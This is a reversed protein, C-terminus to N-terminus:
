LPLHEGNHEVGCRYQTGPSLGSLVAEYQYYTFGIGTESHSFERVRAIAEISHAADASCKVLGRGAELTTWLITARDAGVNQVYPKRVLTPPAATLVLVIALALIFCAASCTTAQTVRPGTRSKARM